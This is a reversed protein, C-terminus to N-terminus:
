GGGARSAAVTLCRRVLVRVLQTRYESGVVWSSGTVIEAAAANAAELFTTEDFGGGAVVAEAATARQGRQPTAGVVIRVPSETGPGVRCCCNTMPFDYATRAFRQFASGCGTALVPLRVSTLVHSLLHRGGSYYEALPIRTDEGTHVTVEADLALLVPIVDSLKGRALHGGITCVNRLLPSGVHALM